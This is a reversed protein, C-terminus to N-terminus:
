TRLSKKFKSLGQRLATADSDVVRLLDQVSEMAEAPNDATLAQKLEDPLEDKGISSLATVVGSVEKLYTKFLAFNSRWQVFMEYVEDLNGTLEEKLQGLKAEVEEESVGIQEPEAPPPPEVARAEELEEELQQVRETARSMKDEITSSKRKYFAVEGQLKKKEEASFTSLKERAGELEGEAEGLREELRKTERVKSKYDPHSTIDAMQASKRELEGELEKRRADAEQMEHKIAKMDDRLRDCERNKEYYDELLKRKEDELDTMGMGMRVQRIEIDKNELELRLESIVNEKDTIIERLQNIRRELRQIDGANGDLGEEMTQLEDRTARFEFEMLDYQRQLEEIQRDKQTLKIKFNAIHEQSGSARDRAGELEAEMENLRSELNFVRDDKEALEERAEDLRERSLTLQDKIQVYKETISDLEVEYRTSKTEMDELKMELDRVMSKNERLEQGLDELEAAQDKIQEVLREENESSGQRKPSEDRQPPRDGAGRLKSPSREQRRNKKPGAQVAAKPKSEPPRPAAPKRKPPRPDVPPRGSQAPIKAETPSAPRPRLTSKGGDGRATKRAPKKPQEMRQEFGYPDGPDEPEPDKGDVVFTIVFDGCRIRDKANLPHQQVPEDNIYTGNSSGLDKVIWTGSKLYIRGHNRSVSPNSTHITSGPNRGISVNMSADLRLVSKSGSNDIYELRAVDQDM